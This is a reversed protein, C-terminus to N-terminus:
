EAPLPEVDPVTDTTTTDTTTTDTTTTTTTTTVPVSIDGSAMHGGPSNYSGTISTTGRSADVINEIAQGGYWISGVIGAMNVLSKVVGWVPHPADQQRQQINIAPNVALSKMRQGDDTWVIAVLPPQNLLAQQYAIYNPDGQYGKSDIGALTDLGKNASACGFLMTAIIIVAVIRKM